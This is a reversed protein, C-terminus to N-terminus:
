QKQCPGCIGFFELRHGVNQYGLEEIVSQLKELGCLEVPQISECKRCIVHHHHDHEDTLYEYRSIGDGLDVEHLLRVETMKLLCRYVTTFVISGRNSKKLKKLENIIQEISYLRHAGSLISLIAIRSPTLALGRKKIKESLEKQSLSAEHAHHADGTTSCSNKTQKM